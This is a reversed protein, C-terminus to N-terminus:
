MVDKECTIRDVTKDNNAVVATCSRVTNLPSLFLMEFNRLLM